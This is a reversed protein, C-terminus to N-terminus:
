SIGNKIEYLKNNIINIAHTLGIRYEGTRKGKLSGKKRDEIERIIEKLIKKMPFKTKFSLTAM